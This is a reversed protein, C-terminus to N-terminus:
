LKMCFETLQNPVSNVKLSGGHLKLIQRSLSLGIGSGNERTTFFPVFIEDQIESPIGPGNDQVKICTQGDKELSAIIKVEGDHKDGVSQFANKVLNLIVQSIQKEDANITLDPQELGVTLAISQSEDFAGALLKIKELLEKLPIIKKEPKPLRTLRRYSDVFSVLGKGRDKIIELGKITNAIVREDIEEKRRAKGNNMFFRSLSESLSTIPAISNMIEHTLVRILKVWSEIEKADLENKIDQIAILMLQKSGALMSTAKLSLQVTGRETKLSVLRHEQSKIQLLVQYLKNDVRSVQMVHTLVELGILRKAATNAHLINGNENFTLIGTATHELITQYYQEQQKNEMKVKQILGNVKNLSSNLEKLSKNRIYEPFYLTSDENKIADFFFALKRNTRNLYYILLSSEIFIVVGTIGAVMYNKEQFLAWGLAICTLTLILVRFLINLFINKSVM